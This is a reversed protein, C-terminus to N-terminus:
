KWFHQNKGFFWFFNRLSFLFYSPINSFIDDTSIFIEFFWNILKCIDTSTAL